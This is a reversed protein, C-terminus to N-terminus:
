TIERIRRLQNENKVEPPEPLPMWHTVSDVCYPITFLGNTTNDRYQYYLFFDGLAFTAIEMRSKETTYKDGKLHVLVQEHDNPLKDKVNIWQGCVPADNVIYQMAYMIGDFYDSVEDQPIKEDLADFAADADILRM